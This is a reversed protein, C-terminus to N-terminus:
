RFKISAVTTTKVCSNKYCKKGFGCHSDKTCKAGIVFGTPSSAKKPKCEINMGVYGCTYPEWPHTEKCNVKSITVPSGLESSCVNKTINIMYDGECKEAEVPYTKCFSSQGGKCGLTGGSPNDNCLDYKFEDCYDPPSQCKQYKGWDLQGCKQNGYWSLGDYDLACKPQLDQIEDIPLCQNGASPNQKSIGCSYPELPHTKACDFQLLSGGGCSVPISSTYNLMKDGVCRSTQVVIPVCPEDICDIEGKENKGCMKHGFIQSCDRKLVLDKGTCSNKTSIRMIYKSECSKGQIGNEPCCGETGTTPDDNCLHHISFEPFQPDSTTVFSLLFPSGCNKSGYKTMGWHLKGKKDYWKEDPSYTCKDTIQLALETKPMCKIQGFKKYYGCTYPEWPHTEACNVKNTVFEGTCSNKTVNFIFDGECKSGEFLKFKCPEGCTAVGKDMRCTLPIDYKVTMGNYGMLKSCDVNEQSIEGTCTNKTMNAVVDGDCKSGEVLESKCAASAVANAVCKGASCGTAKVFKGNDYVYQTTCDAKNNAIQGTCSNKTQNLLFNGECKLSGAITENACCGVNGKTPDDNCSWSGYGCWQNGYMVYSSTPSTCKPKASVCKGAECVTDGYCKGTQKVELGTCSSVTTNLWTKADACSKAESAPLKCCGLTGKLPDDNCSEALAGCWTTGNFKYTGSPSQTCKPPSVCVSTDAGSCDAKCSTVTGTTGAPCTKLKTPVLGDCVEGTELFNNGCVSKELSPNAAVADLCPQNANVFGQLDGSSIKGDGNFDCIKGSPCVKSSVVGALFKQDNVGVYGDGTYDYAANYVCTPAAVPQVMLEKCAGNECITGSPCLTTEKGEEGTCLDKKQKVVDNGLCIPTTEDYSQGAACNCAGDSCSSGAPCTKVVTGAQDGNCYYEYVYNSSDVQKGSNLSEVCIDWYPNNKGEAFLLKGKVGLNIGNDFDKCNIGGPLEDSTAAVPQTPAPMPQTQAQQESKKCQGTVTDCGDSCATVVESNKIIMCNSINKAYRISQLGDKSCKYIFEPCKKSLTATPQSKSKQYKAQFSQLLKQKKVASLKDLKAVQTSKVCVNSYCVEGTNVCDADVQCSMGIALGTPSTNSFSSDSVNIMAVVVVVGVLLVLALGHNLSKKMMINMSVCRKLTFRLM